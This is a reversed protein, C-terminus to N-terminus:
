KRARAGPHGRAPRWDAKPDKLADEALSLLGSTSEATLFLVLGQDRDSLCCKLRTGEVFLLLTGLVRVTGDPWAPLSLFELLTPLLILDSEDFSEGASSNSGNRGPTERRMLAM